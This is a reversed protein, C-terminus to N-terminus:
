HLNVKDLYQFQMKTEPIEKITKKRVFTEIPNSSHTGPITAKMGLFISGSIKKERRVKKTRVV